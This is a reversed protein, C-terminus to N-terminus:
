AAKPPQARNPDKPPKLTTETSAETNEITAEGMRLSQEAVEALMHMPTMTAPLYGVDGGEIPEIDMDLMEAAVNPPVGNKVFREYVTSKADMDDRLESVGSTDYDVMLTERNGFFPVLVRNYCGKLNDAIPIITKTWFARFSVELNALTADEYIGVVPPPVRYGSLIEQLTFRRSEIFDMETPKWSLLDVSAGNSVVWPQRSGTYNQRLEERAQEFEERSLQRDVSFVTEPIARSDFTGKNWLVAAVDTDVVRAMAQLPSMGWYPNAPDNYMFHIAEDAPIEFREGDRWYEYARIFKQKDPIPKLGGPDIPWFELPVKSARRLSTGYVITWLANGGLDMHQCTREILDQRSMNPNPYELLTELPHGPEPEWDDSPKKRTLVRWPLSAVADARSQVATYVWTSAKFGERIAHRSDWEKDMPRGHQWHPLTQATTPAAKFARVAVALRQWVNM